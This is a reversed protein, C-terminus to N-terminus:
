NILTVYFDVSGKRPKSIVSLGPISLSTLSRMFNTSLLNFSNTEQKEKKTIANYRMGKFPIWVNRYSKVLETAVGEVTPTKIPVLFQELISYLVVDLTSSEGGVNVSSNFDGKSKSSIYFNVMGNFGTDIKAKYNIDIINTINDMAGLLGREIQQDRNGSSSLNLIIPKATEVTLTYMDLIDIGTTLAVATGDIEEKINLKITYDWTAKNNLVEAPTLKRANAGKAMEQEAEKVELASQVGPIDIKNFAKGQGTLAAAITKLATEYAPDKAASLYDYITTTVGGVNIDKRYGHTDMYSDDPVIIVTAAVDQSGVLPQLIHDEYLRQQLATKRVKVIINAEVTRKDIKMEPILKPHAESTPVFTKYTGGNAFFPDFYDLRQQYLSAPALPLTKPINESTNQDYGEFIALYVAAKEAKVKCDDFDTGRIKIYVWMVGDDGQKFADKTSAEVWPKIDSNKQAFANSTLLLVVFINFLKKM